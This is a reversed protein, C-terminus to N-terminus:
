FPLHIIAFVHFIDMFLSNFLLHFITEKFVGTSYILMQKSISFSFFYLCYYSKEAGSIELYLLVNFFRVSNKRSYWLHDFNNLLYNSINLSSRQVLQPEQISCWFVSFPWSSRPATIATYPVSGIIGAVSEIAWSISRSPSIPLSKQVTSM